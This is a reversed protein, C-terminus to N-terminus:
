VLTLHELIEAISWRGPVPRALVEPTLGGAAQEIADFASRLRSDMGCCDVAVACCTLVYCTLM